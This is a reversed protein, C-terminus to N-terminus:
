KTEKLHEAYAPVSGILSFEGKGKMTETAITHALNNAARPIYKFRCSKIKAMLQQIDHIYAGIMSKDRNRTRCNKIISLADGEIIFKSWQMDIGLQTTTRCAIAEAAFASEVQQYFTSLSLLVSGERDRAVIGVASQCIKGDYAADFNIKMTQDPPHQWRKVEPLDKPSKEEVGNLELIYSNIFNATEKGSRSFKKHVRKNRDGWIAWLACCFARPCFINNSLKKHRMNVRTPLYNQSMRWITVKIKSPLNLLWLKKYFKRYDTQLTYAGLDTEIGHLLKYASRVMFEGSPEGSWALIDDHAEKTLPIRLIKAAVDEPFTSGILEEKWKRSNDDILEAVKFDCLNNIYSSLISNKFDPIWVDNLTSIESGRGVKWCLGDALVGKAAWISKWTFSCNNRLCSNLFGENPFYQSKLVQAVLSNPNNLIRWGQKALLAVNFKAMSRFGMGGEDKSQCMHQWQCWHICTKGHAKQWWFNTIIREIEGCLSNPLLFCSMAYTPIAQLVSKIFVENGGQSLFRSNWGKIRTQVKEKLKQFSEKKRRGVVNPFGLYKKMDISSRVGLITLIEGKNEESTNSSYFIIFKNFKACQGSCREYEKLIGKLLRAGKNTAEGFLVCDDAFLLHSITSGRRSTKAGKILGGEMALRMLISLEESCLLFLFPSLPDGQRLGRTAQFVRERNGNINVAYSATTICKLILEKLFGWEVRDYAKSMYLKVAM